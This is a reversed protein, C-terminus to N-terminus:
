PGTHVRTPPPQYRTEGAVPEAVPAPTPAPSPAAVLVRPLGTGRGRSSPPRERSCPPRRASFLRPLVVLSCKQGDRDPRTKRGRGLACSRGARRSTTPRGTKENRPPTLSTTSARPTALIWQHRPKTQPWAQGACSDKAARSCCCLFRSELYRGRGVVVPPLYASLQAFGPALPMYSVLLSEVTFRLALMFCCAAYLNSSLLRSVDCQYPVGAVSATRSARRRSFVSCM